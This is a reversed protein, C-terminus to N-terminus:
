AKDAPPQNSRFTSPLSSRIHRWTKRVLVWQIILSIILLVVMAPFYERITFWELWEIDSRVRNVHAKSFYSPWLEVVEWLTSRVASLLWVLSLLIFGFIRM